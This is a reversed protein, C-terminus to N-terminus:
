FFLGRATPLPFRRTKAFASPAPSMFFAPEELHLIPQISNEKGNGANAMIKNDV